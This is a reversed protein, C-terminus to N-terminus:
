EHQADEVSVGRSKEASGCWLYNLDLLQWLQLHSKEFFSGQRISFRKKCAKVPCRWTVSDVARDLAQERCHCYCTPSVMQMALLGYQRCWKICEQCDDMFHAGIRVLSIHDFIAQDPVLAVAMIVSINFIVNTFSFANERSLDSIHWFFFLFIYQFYNSYM